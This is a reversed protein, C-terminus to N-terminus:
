RTPSDLAAALTQEDDELSDRLAWTLPEGRARTHALGLVLRRFLEGALM